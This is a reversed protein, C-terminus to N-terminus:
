ATSWRPQDAEKENEKVNEDVPKSETKKAIYSDNMEDAIRVNAL